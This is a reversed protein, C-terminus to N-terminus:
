YDPLKIGPAFWAVNLIVVAADASAPEYETETEFEAATTREADAASSTLPGTESGGDSM